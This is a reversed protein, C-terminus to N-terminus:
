LDQYAFRTISEVAGGGLASKEFKYRRGAPCFFPLCGESSRVTGTAPLKKRAVVEYVGSAIGNEVLVQVYSLNGSSNKVEVGLVGFRGLTRDTGVTTTAGFAPVTAAGDHETTGQERAAIDGPVLAQAGGTSYLTKAPYAHVHDARAAETGTGVAAAAGLAAPADATLGVGDSSILALVEAAGLGRRKNAVGM